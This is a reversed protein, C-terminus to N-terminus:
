AWAALLSRLCAVLALPQDVMVHHHAEPIDILPTGPRVEARLREAMMGGTLDSLAGRVFALPPQATALDGWPDGLDVGGWLSPDFRWTWSGDDLQKLAMRALFDAIYPNECPQLPSLRFRSLATPLDSYNRHRVGRQADPILEPTPLACDVIIGARVQGPRAAAARLVPLGGLSHGVLVPPGASFAGGAEGAAFGEAVFHEISYGRERWGSAGMGSLSLAVVRHDAAFFPALFSWWGLHAANGHFFLLGPKGREGWARYEVSSGEAEVFGSEFPAEVANKFWQPAPPVAGNFEQLPRGWNVDRM